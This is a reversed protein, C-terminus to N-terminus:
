CLLLKRGDTLEIRVYSLTFSEEEAVSKFVLLILGSLHLENHKGDSQEKQKVCTLDNERHKM